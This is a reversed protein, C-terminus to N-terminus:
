HATPHQESVEIPSLLRDRLDVVLDDGMLSRLYRAQARADFGWAERRAGQQAPGSTLGWRRGLVWSAVVLALYVLSLVQAIKAATGEISAFGLIATIIAVGL